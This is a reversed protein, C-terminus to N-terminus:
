IHKSVLTPIDDVALQEAASQGPQYRSRTHDWLILGFRNDLRHEKFTRERIHRTFSAGSRNGISIRSHPSSQLRLLLPPRIISAPVSQVHFRLGYLARVPISSLRHQVSDAAFVHNTLAKRAVQM